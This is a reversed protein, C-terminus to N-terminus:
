SLDELSLRKLRAVAKLQLQRANERTCGLESGTQELTLGQMRLDLVQRFVTPGTRTILHRLRARAEDTAYAEEPTPGSGALMEVGTTESDEALPEDLSETVVREELHVARSVFARVWFTAWSAFNAGGKASFTAIARMVGLQGAQVMDDFFHQRGYRRVTRMVIGEVSKVVEAIAQKDGRQAALVVDAAIPKM